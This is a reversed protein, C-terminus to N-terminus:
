TTQIFKTQDLPISIWFATGEGPISACEISGHHKEVIIQYSISLGLGTGKGIPKTTFFPDFIRNKVAENMGPGNDIIGININYDDALKTEITIQSPKSNIEELTRQKNYEGLADIANVILNMFVQNLSGPYCSVPPINGFKKIITIPAIKSEEKIKSQLILLTNEIGTHLDILKIEAEDHRSFNKLSLVIQRIRDAGMEMSNLIKPLDAMLFNVDINNIYDSIEPIAQPYKEQYIKVMNLLDEVYEKIYPVNGYIFNVPNNIEHAVGAVLQGLSSMKEHQILQSQTQKLQELTKELQINQIKSSYATFGNKAYIEAQEIAIEIQEVIAKVLSIEHLNWEKNNQWDECIIMGIKNTNTNILIALLASLNPLKNIQALEFLDINSNNQSNDIIIVRKELIQTYIKATVELPNYNAIDDNGVQDIIEFYPTETDSRYWYFSCRNLQLLDKIASITTHLINPLDLSHRIQKTLLSILQEREALQKFIEEKEQSQKQKFSLHKKLRADIANRLEELDFPKTLYDDAGLNMGYRIDQKNAKASLFIFPITATEAQSQLTNFVEYGDMEPMMIDCIILDPMETQALKVGEAGEGATIVDYNFLELILSIDERLDATDDIVLIKTM